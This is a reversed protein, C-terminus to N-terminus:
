RMLLDAAGLEKLTKDERMEYPDELSLADMKKQLSRLGIRHMPLDVEAKSIYKSAAALMIFPNRASMAALLIADVVNDEFDGIRELLCPITEHFPNSRFLHFDGLEAAAQVFRQRQTWTPKKCTRSLDDFTNYVAEFLKENRSLMSRTLPARMSEVNDGRTEPIFLERVLNAYYGAPSNKLVKKAANIPHKIHAEILEIVREAADTSRSSIVVSLLTGRSDNVAEIAEKVTDDEESNAKRLHVFDARDHQRLVKTKIASVVDELVPQHGGSAAAALLVGYRSSSTESNRSTIGLAFDLDVQAADDDSAKGDDAKNLPQIVANFVEAAEGKAAHDDSAPASGDGAKNMAQIVANFVEATEGKAAHFIITRHKLDVVQLQQRLESEGLTSSITKCVTEFCTTSKSRAAQFPLPAGHIDSDRLQKVLAVRGLRDKIADVASSFSKDHGKSAAHMLVNYGDGFDKSKLAEAIIEKEKVKSKGGAM